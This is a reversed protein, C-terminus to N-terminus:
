PLLAALALLHLYGAVSGRHYHSADLVGEGPAREIRPHVV